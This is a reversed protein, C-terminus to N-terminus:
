EPMGFSRFLGGWDSATLKLYCCVGIGQRGNRSQSNTLIRSLGGSVVSPSSMFTSRLARSSMERACALISRASGIVSGDWPVNGFWIGSACSWTDDSRAPGGAAAARRAQREGRADGPGIQVITNGLASREDAHLGAAAPYGTIEIMSRILKGDDRCHDRKIDALQPHIFSAADSAVAARDPM